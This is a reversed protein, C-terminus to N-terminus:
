KQGLMSTLNALYSDGLVRVRKMETVFEIKKGNPVRRVVVM